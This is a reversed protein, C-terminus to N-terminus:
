CQRRGYEAILIAEAINDDSKITKTLDPFLQKALKISGPKGLKELKFYKKWKTGDVEEFPIQMSHMMGILIGYNILTTHVGKQPYMYPIKRKCVPCPKMGRVQKTIQKEIIVKYGTAKIEEMIATLEEKCEEPPMKHIVPAEHMIAIAGQLGPDIGVTHIQTIQEITNTM